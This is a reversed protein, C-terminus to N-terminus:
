AVKIQKKDEVPSKETKPLNLSLIGKEYTATVKEANVDEPLVFSRFLSNYSFEKRRFHKKEVEHEEKKEANITIAGNDVEIKFDEKNLGPAAVEIKYNAPDETINASPFQNDWHNFLKNAISFPSWDQQFFDNVLSKGGKTLQSM